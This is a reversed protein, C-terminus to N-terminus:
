PFCVMKMKRFMHKPEMCWVKIWQNGSDRISWDKEWETGVGGKAKRHWFKGSGKERGPQNLVKKGWTEM